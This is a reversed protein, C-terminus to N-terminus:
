FDRKSNKESKKKLIEWPDGEIKEYKSVLQSNLVGLPDGKVIKLRLHLASKPWERSTEVPVLFHSWQFFRLLFQSLYVFHSM